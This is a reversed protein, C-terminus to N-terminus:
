NHKNNLIKELRRVCGDLDKKIEHEWIRVINWGMKSLVEDVEMDREVNRAIKASWFEARTVPPVYHIPCKHWFCGDVFIAIKKQIFIIDPKGPLQNKIRYRYGMAWLAKRLQLEATTDRGRIRRMCEKRQAPTLVDIM